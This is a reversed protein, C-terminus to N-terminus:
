KAELRVQIEVLGIKEAVCLNVPNKIIKYTFPDVVMEKEFDKNKMLYALADLIESDPVEVSPKVIAKVPLMTTISLTRKLNDMFDQKNEADVVYVNAFQIGLRRFVEIQLRGSILAYKGDDVPRVIIRYQLEKIMDWKTNGKRKGLSVFKNQLYSIDEEMQESIISHEYETFVVDSINIKRKLGKNKRRWKNLYQEKIAM